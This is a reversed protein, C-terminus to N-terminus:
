RNRTALVFLDAASFQAALEADALGPRLSCWPYRRAHEVLDAPPDGTGCVTLRIDPRSLAAIAETLQPLGKERWEVLRFATM